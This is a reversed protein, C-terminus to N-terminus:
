LQHQVSGRFDAAGEALDGSGMDRECSGHPQLRYDRQSRAIGDLQLPIEPDRIAVEGGIM